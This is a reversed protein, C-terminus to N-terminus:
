IRQKRFTDKRWIGRNFEKKFLQVIVFKVKDHIQLIKTITEYVKRETNEQM